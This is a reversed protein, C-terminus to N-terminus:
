EEVLKILVAGTSPYKSSVFRAGMRAADVADGARDVDRVRLGVILHHSSDVRDEGPHAQGLANRHAYMDLLYRRADDERGPHRGGNLDVIAGARLGVSISTIARISVSEYRTSSGDDVAQDILELVGIGFSEPSRPSSLSM